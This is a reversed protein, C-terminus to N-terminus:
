WGSRACRRLCLELEALQGPSDRLQGRTEYERRSGRGPMDSNGMGLVYESSRVRSVVLRTGSGAPVPAHGEISQRGRGVSPVPEPSWVLLLVASEAHSLRPRKRARTFTSALLGDLRVQGPVRVDCHRSARSSMRGGSSDSPAWYASDAAHSCSSALSWSAVKQVLRAKLPGVRSVIM